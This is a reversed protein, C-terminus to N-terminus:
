DKSKFHMTYLDNIIEAERDELEKIRADVEKKSEEGEALDKTAKEVLTGALYSQM